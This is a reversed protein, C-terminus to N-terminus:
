HESVLCLNPQARNKHLALREHAAERNMMDMGEEQWSLCTSFVYYKDVSNKIDVHWM